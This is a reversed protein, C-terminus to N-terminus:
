VPGLTGKIKGLKAFEEPTNVRRGISAAPHKNSKLLVVELIEGQKGVQTVSAVFGGSYVVRSCLPRLGYLRIFHKLMPMDFWHKHRHVWKYADRWRMAPDNYGHVLCDLVKCVAVLRSLADLKDQQLGRPYGSGDLRENANVMLSEGISPPIWRLASAARLLQIQHQKMLRLKEPMLKLPNFCPQRSVSLKGLDHLLLSMMVALEMGRRIGIKFVLPFCHSIVRLTHLIVPNISATNAQHLALRFANEDKELAEILEIALPKLKNPKLKQNMALMLAQLALQDAWTQIKIAYGQPMLLAAIPSLNKELGINKYAKKDKAIFLPSQHKVTRQVNSLRAVEREIEFTRHVFLKEDDLSEHIFHCGVLAHTFNEQPQLYTMEFSTTLTQGNPFTITSRLPANVPQILYLALQPSLAVRCGGASFDVLRGEVTLNDLHLTVPLVLHQGLSIRFFERNFVKVLQNPMELTLTLKDDKIETHLVELSNSEHLLNRHKTLLRFLTWRAWANIEQSVGRLQIKLHNKERDVLLSAIVIPEVDAVQKDNVLAQLKVGTQSSAADLARKLVLGTLRDSIINKKQM